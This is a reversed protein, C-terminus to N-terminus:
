RLLSNDMETLINLIYLWDRKQDVAVRHTRGRRSTHYLPYIWPTTDRIVRGIDDELKYVRLQQSSPFYLKMSRLATGGITVILKPRIVALQRSFWYHCNVIERPTPAKDTYGDYNPHCLCANTIFVNRRNIKLQNFCERFFEASPDRNDFSVYGSEGTGNRGPRENIFMLQASGQANKPDPYPVYIPKDGYCKICQRADDFIERIDTVM